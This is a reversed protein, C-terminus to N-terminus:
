DAAVRGGPGLGAGKGGVQLARGLAGEVLRGRRRSQQRQWDGGEDEVEGPRRQHAGVRCDGQVEDPFDELMAARGNPLLHHEAQVVVPVVDLPDVTRCDMLAKLSGRVKPLPQDPDGVYHSCHLQVGAERVGDPVKQHEHLRGEGGQLALVGERGLTLGRQDLRLEGM